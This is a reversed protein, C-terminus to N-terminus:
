KVTKSTTKKPNVVKKDPVNSANDEILEPNSDANVPADTPQNDLKNESSDTNDQNETKELELNEPYLIEDDNDLDKEIQIVKVVERKITEVTKDELSKAHNHANSEQYFAEGDSTKFFEKLNPNTKFIAEM